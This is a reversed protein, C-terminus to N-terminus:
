GRGSAIWDAVDQESFRLVQPALWTGHLQGNKMARRVTQRSVKALACLEATTLLEALPEGRSPAPEARLPTVSM